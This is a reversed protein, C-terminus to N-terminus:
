IISFCKFHDKSFALLPQVGIILMIGTGVIEGRCSNFYQFTQGPGKHGRSCSKYLLCPSRFSSIRLGVLSYRAFVNGCMQDRACNKMYLQM